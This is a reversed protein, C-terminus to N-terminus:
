FLRMQGKKSRRVVDIPSMPAHQTAVGVDIRVGVRSLLDDACARVISEHNNRESLHILTLHRTGEGVIRALAEMADENSLHGHRSLIRRKLSWPYSGTRLMDLDHNAEFLLADCGQLHALVSADVVGLDSAIGARTGDRAEVVFCSPDAADHIVRCSHVELEGIRFSANNEFPRASLKRPDLRAAELTDRTAYIPIGFKAAIKAAGHVHDGHEHTIIIADVESLERGLLKLRQQTQRLGFGADVLIRTGDSEFLCSNGASGSGLSAVLM